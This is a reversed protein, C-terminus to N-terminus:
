NAVGNSHTSTSTLIEAVCGDAEKLLMECHHRVSFPMLSDDLEERIRAAARPQTEGEDRLQVAYRRVLGLFGARLADREADSVPVLDKALEEARVLSRMARRMLEPVDDASHLQSVPRRDGCTAHSM